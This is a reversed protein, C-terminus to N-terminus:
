EKSQIREFIKEVAEKEQMEREEKILGISIKEVNKMVYWYGDHLSKYENEIWQVYIEHKEYEDRRKIYFNTKENERELKVIKMKGDIKNKSMFWNKKNLEIIKFKRKKSTTCLSKEYKDMAKRYLKEAAKHDHNSEKKAKIHNECLTMYWGNIDALKGVTGCEECIFQSDHEAKSIMGHIYNPAASVYFSLTGFKEKIQTITMEDGPNRKNYLNIENIIPLILGYWGYGPEIGFLEFPTKRKTDSEMMEIARVAKSFEDEPRKM